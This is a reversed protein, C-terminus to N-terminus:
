VAIQIHRRQYFIFSVRGFFFGLVICAAAFCVGEGGWVSVGRWYNGGGARMLLAKFFHPFEQLRLLTPAPSAAAAAPLRCKAARCSGLSPGLVVLPGQHILAAAATKVGDKSRTGGCWRRIRDPCSDRPREITINYKAAEYPAPHFSPTISKSNM